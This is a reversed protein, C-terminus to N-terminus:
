DHRGSMALVTGHGCGWACFWLWPRHWGAIEDCLALIAGPVLSALLMIVWLISAVTVLLLRLGVALYRIAEALRTMPNLWEPPDDLGMPVDPAPAGDGPRDVCYHAGPPRTYDRSFMTRLDKKLYLPHRPSGDASRALCHLECASIEAYSNM